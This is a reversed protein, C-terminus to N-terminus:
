EWKLASIRLSHPKSDERQFFFQAVIKNVIFDAAPRTAGQLEPTATHKCLHSYRHPGTTPFASFRSLLPDQSESERNPLKKEHPRM